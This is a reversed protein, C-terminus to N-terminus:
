GERFRVVRKVAARLARDTATLPLREIRIEEYDIPVAGIQEKFRALSSSTGTDGLHYTPCGEAIADEIALWQLLASARTPGALERNMAGKTYHAVNGMLVIISAVPEGGKRALWHRFGGNMAQARRRLDDVTPRNRNRWRALLLPEHQGRAWRAVSLGYLHEYEDLHRGDTDCIVDLDSREAKRVARRHKPMADWVADRGPRLDLVHARRAVTIAGHGAARWLDAELPNPRIRASLHGATRLDDLVHAITEITRPAGVLGGIGLGDPLGAAVGRRRLLPLVMQRGDDFTYLRSADGFADHRCAAETWGPTQSLLATPDAAALSAWSARPAPSEVSVSVARTLM